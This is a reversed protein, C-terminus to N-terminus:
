HLQKAIIVCVLAFTCFYHNDEAIVVSILKKDHHTKDRQPQWNVELLECLM